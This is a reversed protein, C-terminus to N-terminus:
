SAVVFLYMSFPHTISTLILYTKSDGPLAKCLPYLLAATTGDTRGDALGPQNEIAITPLNANM